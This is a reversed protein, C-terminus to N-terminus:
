VIKNGFGWIVTGLLGLLFAAKGVYTFASSIGWPLEGERARCANLFHKKTLRNLSIFEAVAACFVSISGSRELWEGSRTICVIVIPALVGACLWLIAPWYERYGLEPVVLKYVKTDAHM